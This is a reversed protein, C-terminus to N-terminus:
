VLQYVEFNIIVQSVGLKSLSHGLPEGKLVIMPLHDIDWGLVKCIVQGFARHARKKKTKLIRTSHQLLGHCDKFRKWVKKGIGGCVLCRFEGDEYHKEYYSRFESNETFIKLFFKFVEGRDSRDEDMLDEEDEDDSEDSDSGSSKVFFEQCADLIKQQLQGASLKSQEEASALYTVLPRKPKLTPWGSARSSNENVPKTWSWESSTILSPGSEPM